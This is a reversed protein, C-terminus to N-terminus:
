HIQLQIFWFMFHLLAHMCNRTPSQASATVLTWTYLVRDVIHPSSMFLNRAIENNIYM